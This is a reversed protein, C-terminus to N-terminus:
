PRIEQACANWYGDGLKDARLDCDSAMHQDWYDVVDFAGAQNPLVWERLTPCGTELSRTLGWESRHPAVYWFFALGSDLWTSKHVSQKVRLALITVAEGKKWEKGCLGLAKVLEGCDVRDPTPLAPNGDDDGWDSVFLILRKMERFADVLFEPAQKAHIAPNSFLRNRDITFYVVQEAFHIKAGLCCQASSPFIPKELLQDCNRGQMITVVESQVHVPSNSYNWYALAERLTKRDNLDHDTFSAQWQAICM